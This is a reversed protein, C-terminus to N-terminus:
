EVDLVRARIPELFLQDQRQNYYGATREAGLINALHLVGTLSLSIGTLWYPGGRSHDYEYAVFSTLAFAGVFAAAQLADWWHGV